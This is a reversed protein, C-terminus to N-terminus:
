SYEITVSDPAEYSYPRDWIFSHGSTENLRSEKLVKLCPGNRETPLHEIELASSNWELAYRSAVHIMVEEIKRGMVRCSLILDAIRAREGDVELSVVGCLGSDGFKDKVSVAWIGHGAEGAWRSIEDQSLRRTTLNLQNTKNYLQAVRALNVDSLPGIHVRTDISKLWDDVSETDLVTFSEKRSRESVYMQTRKFDEATVEPFDFCQLTELAAVYETPDRPWEPVLVEPLATAVREREVPNDDIFVISDLGLRLESALSRINQAKDNWNIRWGAFDERKLIMEPHEDIAKLAYDEDNKSAIALQIGRRSLAALRSQFDAFAEGVYDHGGLRIQDIGDDGLIGGWLTDDLDVVILKRYGGSLTRIAGTIEQSAARYLVNSYPSKTIYNMKQQAASPGSRMFWSASDLVYVNKLESMLGALKLNLRSILHRIGLGPKLDLIGYHRYGAEATWSPIIVYACAGALSRVHSLFGEMEELVADHDVPKMSIAEAFSSLIGQPRTWLVVVSEATVTEPPNLLTQYVQGFPTSHVNIGPNQQALASKLLDINFDSVLVVSDPRM